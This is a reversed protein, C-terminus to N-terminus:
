SPMGRSSRSLRRAESWWWRRWGRRPERILAEGAPGFHRCVSRKAFLRMLQLNLASEPAAQYYFSSRNLGLLEGQRRVSLTPNAVDVM